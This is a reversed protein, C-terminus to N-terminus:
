GIVLEDFTGGSFTVFRNSNFSRQDGDAQLGTLLSLSNGTITDVLVKGDYFAISNGPDISGWYLGLSSTPSFSVNLSSGGLVSVYSGSTGFPQAGNGNTTNSIISTGPETLWAKPLRAM